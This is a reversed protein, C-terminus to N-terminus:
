LGKRYNDIFCKAAQAWKPLNECNCATLLEVLDLRVKDHLAPAWNAALYADIAEHM